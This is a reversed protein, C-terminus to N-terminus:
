FFYFRPGQNMRVEGEGGAVINVDENAEALRQNWWGIKKQTEIEDPSVTNFDYFRKNGESPICWSQIMNANNPRHWWTVIDAGMLNWNNGELVYLQTTLDEWQKGEVDRLKLHFHSVREFQKSGYRGPAVTLIELKGQDDTRFKGRLGYTTLHYEGATNAQWMDVEAHPVPEGKPGKVTVSFLYPVCTKLEEISALIGKGDELNRYPAGPIYYPGDIEAM